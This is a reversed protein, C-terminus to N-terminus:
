RAGLRRLDALLHDTMETFGSCQWREDALLVQLKDAVANAHPAPCEIMARMAANRVDVLADFHEEIPDFIASEAIFGAEMEPNDAPKANMPWQSRWATYRVSAPTLYDRDYDLMAQDAKIYAARAAEWKGTPAAIAPLSASVAVASAASAILLSRRDM